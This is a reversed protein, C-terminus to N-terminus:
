SSITKNGSIYGSLLGLVLFLLFQSQRIDWFAHDFFMSIFLILFIYRLFLPVKKFGAFVRVVIAIVGLLGVIGTEVLIMVFTNHAPEAIWSPYGTLQYAIEIVFNGIGIGYPHSKILTWSKEFVIMRASLSEWTTSLAPNIRWWIAPALYVLLSVIVLLVLLAWLANKKNKLSKFISFEGRQFKPSAPQFNFIRVMYIGWFIIALLWAIRSFTLLLAVATFVLSVALYSKYTKNRALSLLYLNAMGSVLLFTAFVNPHPFTGYSRIHKAGGIAIKAVGAIDSSLPSEGLLHLGVSHGLFFQLIGLISQLLISFIFVNLFVSINKKTRLHNNVFVYFVFLETLILLYYLSTLRDFAFFVSMIGAVMLLCISFLMKSDGMFIKKRGWLSKWIWAVFAPVIFIEFGYLSYTLYDIYRGELFSYNSYFSLKKQFSLSFVFFLLFLSSLDLGVLYSSVMLFVKKM